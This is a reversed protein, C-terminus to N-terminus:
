QLAVKSTFTGISNNAIFSNNENTVLTGGQTALVAVWNDIFTSRSVQGNGGYAVVGDGFGSVECNDLILSGEDVEVGVTGTSATPPGPSSFTSNFASVATVYSASLGGNAFRVHTNIIKASTTYSAEGLLSIGNTSCNEITTDKIVLDVPGLSSASICNGAIGTVQVNDIDLGGYGQAHIGQTAGAYGHVSLNHIQVVGGSTNVLIAASAGSGSVTISALGGGDIQISQNLVVPGYDGANLVRVQGYLPTVSVARQFTKCPAAETCANSDSGVNSVWTQADAVLALAFMCSLLLFMKTSKM